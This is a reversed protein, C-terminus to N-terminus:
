AVRRQDVDLGLSCSFIELVVRSRELRLSILHPLVGAEELEIGEQSRRCSDGNFPLFTSYVFVKAPAVVTTFKNSCIAKFCTWAKWDRRHPSL